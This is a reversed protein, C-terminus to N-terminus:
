LFILGPKKETQCFHNLGYKHQQRDLQCKVNMISCDIFHQFYKRNYLTECMKNRETSEKKRM